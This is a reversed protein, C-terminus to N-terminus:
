ATVNITSGAILDTTTTSPSPASSPASSSDSDDHAHHGHHHHAGQVQGQAAFQAKQDQQLKAFNQQASALDGSQLDQGIAALDQGLPSNSNKLRSAISSSRSSAPSDSLNQMLAAFASQAGALDSAQLSKSLEQFDQRRQQVNSPPTAFLSAISGVPSISV